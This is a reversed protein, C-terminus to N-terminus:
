VVAQAEFFRNHAAKLHWARVTLAAAPNSHM